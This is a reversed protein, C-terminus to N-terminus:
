IEGPQDGKEKKLIDMVEDRYFLYQKYKLEKNELYPRIVPKDYLYDGYAIKCTENEDVHKIKYYAEKDILANMTYDLVYPKGQIKVELWTHLVKSKDALSSAMGTVIDPSMNLEYRMDDALELSKHHCQGVRRLSKIDENFKLWPLSKSLVNVTILDGQVFGNKTYIKIIGNQINFQVKEVYSINEVDIMKSIVEDYSVPDVTFCSIFNNIKNEDRYVGGVALAQSQLEEIEQTNKSSLAKYYKEKWQQGELEDPFVFKSFRDDTTIEPKDSKNM